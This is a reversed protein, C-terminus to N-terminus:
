TGPQAIVPLNNDQETVNFEQQHLDLLLYHLERMGAQFIYNGHSLCFMRFNAPSHLDQHTAEIVPGSANFQIFRRYEDGGSRRSIVHHMKLYFNCVVLDAPYPGKLTGEPIVLSSGNWHLYPLYNPKYKVISKM